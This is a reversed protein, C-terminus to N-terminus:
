KGTGGRAPLSGATATEHRIRALQYDRLADIRLRQLELRRTRARLVETLSTQGASYTNRLQEEIQAAKPLVTTDLESVLRALTVMEDRVGAAEAGATIKTADVEKAARVATAEAEHVRGSNSNWIPLPISVKFGVMHETETPDPEDKTRERTYTAGLGVDEWRSARQQRAAANAADARAEAAQVDPRNAVSGSAALATSAPLEGTINIRTDGSVGLKPRLESILAAEETALQLNEVEIQRTELEVQSADVASAEGTEVRKLLFSGLERSNALQKGRLDRQADLALLKVAATRVDAALKREADRVEAEAAALEARSVAKEHRLRATLPFRQMLSVGLEGERGMTNRVFDFELEPNSLRGSQEVRSRAEAIRLRAAALTPNHRIAYDAAGDVSFSAGRAWMSLVCAFFLFSLRFM